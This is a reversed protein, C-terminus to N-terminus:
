PIMNNIAYRLQTYTCNVLFGSLAAPSCTVSSQSLATWLPCAAASVDVYLLFPDCTVFHAAFAYVYTRVYTRIYMRVYTPVCIAMVSLACTQGVCVMTKVAEKLTMVLM